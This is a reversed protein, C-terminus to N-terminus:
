GAAGMHEELGSDSHAGDLIIKQMATPAARDSTSCCIPLLGGEAQHSIGLDNWAARDGVQLFFMWCLVLFGVVALVVYLQMVALMPQLQITILICGHM